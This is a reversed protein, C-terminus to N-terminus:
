DWQWYKGPTVPKGQGTTTVKSDGKPAGAEILKKKPGAEMLVQPPEAERRGDRKCYHNASLKHAEGGPLNPPAQDRASVLATYRLASREPVHKRGLLFNRM